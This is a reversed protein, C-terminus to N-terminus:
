RPSRRVGPGGSWKRTGRAGTPRDTRVRRDTGPRHPARDTRVLRDTGTRASWAGNELTAGAVFPFSGNLCGPTVHRRPPRAGPPATTQGTSVALDPRRRRPSAPLPPTSRRPQGVRAAAHRGGEPGDIRLHTAIRLMAMAMRTLLPFHHRTREVYEKPILAQLEIG